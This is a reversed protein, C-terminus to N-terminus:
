LAHHFVLAVGLQPKPNSSTAAKSDEKDFAPARDGSSERRKISLLDMLHAFMPADRGQEPCWRVVRVTSGYRSRGIAYDNPEAFLSPVRHHPSPLVRCNPSEGKSLVGLDVAFAVAAVNTLSPPLCAPAPPTPDHM